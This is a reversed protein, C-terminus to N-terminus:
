FNNDDPKSGKVVVANEIADTTVLQDAVTKKAKQGL